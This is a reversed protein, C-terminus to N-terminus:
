PLLDTQFSRFLAIVASLAILGITSPEPVIQLQGQIIRQSAENITVNVLWQGALLDSLQANNLAVPDWIAEDQAWPSSSIPNGGDGVPTIRTAPLVPEGSRTQIQASHGAMDAWYIVSGGFINGQLTFRGEGGRTEFPATEIRTLLVHFELTGQAFASSVFLSLIIFTKITRM